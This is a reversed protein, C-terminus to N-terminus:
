ERRSPGERITEKGFIRSGRTDWIMKGIMRRIDKVGENRLGIITWLDVAKRYSRLQFEYFRLAQNAASIYTGFNYRKGFITLMENKIHGKLARGLIFVVKAHGTGFSFNRIQDLMENLLSIPYGSVAARGFWVFRQLDNIDLFEAVYVMADVKGLEVAVLFNEKARETRKACGIGYQFCWALFYFGDREGQAASKEAWRFREEEDGQWVMWAQAFADCLDAARCIEDFDGVLLAAFFRAGPDSECGLFVQRAEEKANEKLLVSAFL